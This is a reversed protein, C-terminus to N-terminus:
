KPRVSICNTSRHGEGKVAHQKNVEAGNTVRVAAHMHVCVCVCVCVCVRRAYVRVGACVYMYVRAYVCAGYM